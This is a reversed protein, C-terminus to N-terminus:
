NLGFRRILWTKIVQTLVMYGTLIGALALWYAHPLPAMGLHEALPSTPLWIGIVCIAITTVMLPFSARSEVFPIKGTRIVHVILTQSLLSEVFWGTQFTLEDDWADFVYLLTGFTVYDFLSSIPGVYVMFRGINGIDWQRPKRLYEDDVSDTAVTTQSFDYLLNNVLIQVPAMPLFPLFASAGLVSFMNGFNSSAGMKIYKIINGFVKRGEIVGQELVMLNKELLIIDASEKAIDVATDVSIGVDAIKLAPGDNIGDGLFGVVHGRAHLAKIVRAKQSPSLKAFVSVTEVKANLQEDAMAEIASGTLVEDAELGVQNCVNRAVADNDGTLVKVSIGYDKLAQLAARASEKPPDLFAIYGALILDTEDHVSCPTNPPFEKYAVAIVRFGEDNYEQSIKLLEDHHGEELMVVEGHQEARNCAAFVEEVAGKCILLHPGGQEAVVVSMRRRQFDFPIEDVKTFREENKLHGGVEVHELVAKDLLNKLGSQHFSNLYAYELVRTSEAGFVDVYRELIVHDQTLTGTKDTCLVDMAGLNQISNLRKVIVKKAAMALAGKALNITVIMPLMEPALGVAVAVAFLFAELWDGKTLGNIVFVLPVMVLMFRIILWIFREVGKDFSTLQRMATVDSAIAGFYTRPGTMAVAAMATGSVVNTGMFAVNDLELASLARKTTATAFKEVPLSEGTLAAQNVFLDRAQVIRVDAPILDGASLQIIDGPVVSTLPVERRESGRPTIALPFHKSVEEPVGLRKDKRLVTTTTSVMAKLREAAKSSRYEQLFAFFSSLVVILSIVIAGSVEGTFYNLAALVLLLMPLPSILVEAFRRLPHKKTEHSVENRGFEELREDAERDLLGDWSTGLRELSEDPTLKALELLEKDSTGGLALRAAPQAEPEEAARRGLKSRAARLAFLSLYEPVRAGPAFNRLEDEYASKVEEVPLRLEKALTEIAHLNQDKEVHEDSLTTM